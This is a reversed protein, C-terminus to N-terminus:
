QNGSHAVDPVAQAFEDRKQRMAEFREFLQRDYQLGDASRLFSMQADWTQRDTGGIIEAAAHFLEQFREPSLWSQPLSGNQGCWMDAVQIMYKIRVPPSPHTSQYVSVRDINRRWFECFFALVALFFCRLLLEDGDTM